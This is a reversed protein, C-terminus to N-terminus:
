SRSDSISIHVLAAHLVRMNMPRTVPAATAVHEKVANENVSNQKRILLAPNDM